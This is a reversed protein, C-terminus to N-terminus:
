RDIIFKQFEDTYIKKFVGNGKKVEVYEKFMEDLNEFDRPSIHVNGEGDTYTDLARLAADIDNRLMARFTKDNANKQEDIKEHLKGIESVIENDYNHM